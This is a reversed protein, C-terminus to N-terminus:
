LTDILQNAWNKFSQFKDHIQKEIAYAAETKVNGEPLMITNVMTHLKEKDPAAAAEKEAAIRAKEDQGKQQREAEEQLQKTHLEDALRKSEAQQAALKEAAIRREDALKKEKKAENEYHLRAADKIGSLEKQYAPEDLNIMKNDDRIFMMYPKIEAYRAKVRNRETALVKEREEAEKRLRENEAIMRLREEEAAKIAAKREEEARKEEAIRDEEAKKLGALMANYTQDDLKGVNLSMSGQWGLRSLAVTREIRLAEIRKAEAIERAKEVNTFENEAVKCTAAILNYAAQEMNGRLLYGRKRSDKLKESDTRIKVTKLRLNRAISEDLETPAAFNIKTAQEHIQALDNLFPQYSQKILEGEQIELGSQKVIVDLEEPKVVALATTEM